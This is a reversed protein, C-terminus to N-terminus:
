RLESILKDTSVDLSRKLKVHADEERFTVITDFHLKQNTYFRVFRTKYRRIYIENLYNMCDSHTVNYADNM